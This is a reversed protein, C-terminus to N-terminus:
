DRAGAGRLMLVGDNNSCCFCGVAPVPALQPKQARRAFGGGPEWV